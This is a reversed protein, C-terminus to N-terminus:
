RISQIGRAAQIPTALPFPRYPELDPEGKSATLADSNVATKRVARQLPSRWPQDSGVHRLAPPRPNGERYPDRLIRQASVPGHLLDCPHVSRM